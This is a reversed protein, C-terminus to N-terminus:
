MTGIKGLTEVGVLRVSSWTFIEFLPVGGVEEFEMESLSEVLEELGSPVAIPSGSM